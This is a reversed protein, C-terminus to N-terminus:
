HCTLDELSELLSVKRRRYPRKLPGLIDLKQDIDAFNNEIARLRQFPLVEAVAQEVTLLGISIHTLQEGSLRV